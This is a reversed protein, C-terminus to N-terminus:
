NIRNKKGIMLYLLFGPFPLLLLIIVWVIRDNDKEFEGNLVDILSWFWVGVGALALGAMFLLMLAIM